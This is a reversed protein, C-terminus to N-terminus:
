RIWGILSPSRPDHRDHERGFELPSNEHVWVIGGSADDGGTLVTFWLGRQKALPKQLHRAEFETVNALQKAAIGFPTESVVSSKFARPCAV